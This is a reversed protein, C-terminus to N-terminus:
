RRSGLRRPRTTRPSDNRLGRSESRPLGIASWALLYGCAFVLLRRERHETFTRTYFSAFPTVGPLMMAAMMVTWVGVFAVASLGMTAPMGGMGGSIAVVGLWAGAAGFLLFAAAPRANRVAVLQPGSSRVTMDSKGHRKVRPVDVLRRLRTRAPDVRRTRRGGRHRCRGRLRPRRMTRGTFDMERAHPLDLAAEYSDPGVRVMLDDRVIGVCMNGAIMFALGGFMKQESLDPDDALATRVREALGEDFAVRPAYRRRSAHRCSWLM